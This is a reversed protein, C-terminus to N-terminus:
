VNIQVTSGGTREKKVIIQRDIKEKLLDVHSIIGVIRNGDTISSLAKFAKQLTDSDLTGFGEDVFMSDLQIGGASMRVEDSLGLALALSAEFSEGGSLSKVSRQGGNYHDIVDLELGTQNKLNVAEKRRVLEYQGDSMIMLRKNAHSIIREFYNMQIYTELKIKEKGGLLNGNATKSLSSIWAYRQEKEALNGASVNLKDLIDQNREIRSVIAQLKDENDYKAKKLNIDTSTVSDVDINKLKEVQVKLQKIEGELSAIKNLNNDLAEKGKELASNMSNVTSILKDIQSEAAKKDSFKLDQSIENIQEELAEVKANLSAAEASIDKNRNTNEAIELELKPNREEIQKKREVKLLENELEKQISSIKEIISNQEEKVKSSIESINIEDLKENFLKNWLSIISDKKNQVEIKKESANRNEKEAKAMAEKSEVEAANLEEETPAKESLEAPKPHHLSGCVPCPFDEQLELALIGAQEDMFAKRLAKYDAEKREALAYLNKYKAISKKYEEETSSYLKVNEEIERLSQKEDELENKQSTLTLLNEGANLLSSYEEALNIKERKLVEGENNIAVLLKKKEDRQISLTKYENLKIEFADYKSLDNKITTVEAEIAKKKDEQSLLARYKEELELKEESLSEKEETKEEIDKVSKNLIQIEGLVEANKLLDNNIVNLEESINKKSKSDQQLIKNILEITDQFTLQNKLAKELDMSLVDNKDCQISALYTSIETRITKCEAGVAKEEDNLKQQLKLYYDTKFLNRFIEIRRETGEMLLKQFDGQAIMVIQSFQEKNIRLLEEIAKTVKSQQTIVTGDPMTLTAEALQTTLGEGRKATREYEPNRKVNYTKGKFEFTLDVETPIDPTAFTSRIMSATRNEGNLDGFLAYTIADFITTKGSGTDGTILFLGKNGFKDLEIETKNCYTGFGSIILKLPRM